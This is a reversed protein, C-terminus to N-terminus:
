TAIVLRDEDDSSVDDNDDIVKQWSTMPPPRPPAPDSAGEVPSGKEVKALSVEAPSPTLRPTKEAIEACVNGATPEPSGSVKLPPAAPSASSSSSGLEGTQLSSAAAADPSGQRESSGPLPSLTSLPSLSPIIAPLAINVIQLGPVQTQPGSSQSTPNTALVQLGLTANLTLGQQPLLQTPTLGTSTLGMLNLTELGVPQITQAQLGTVQGLNFCPVVSSIPEQVVLPQPRLSEPQPSATPPPLPSTNRHIVGVAPFTLQVPGAQLPVFTSYAALGAPVLQIGGVPVMSYSSRSPQQSHLPLHSFLHTQTEAGPPQSLVQPPFHGLGQPAFSSTQTSRDVPVGSDAPPSGSSDQSFVCVFVGGPPSPPTNIKVCSYCFASSKFPCDLKLLTQNSSARLVSVSFGVLVVFISPSVTWTSTSFLYKTCTHLRKKFRSVM